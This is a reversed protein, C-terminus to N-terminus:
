GPPSTAAKASCQPDLPFDARVFTSDVAKGHLTLNDDGGSLKDTGWINQWIISHPAVFKGKSFFVTGGPGIRCQFATGDANIQVWVKKSQFQWTGRIAEPPAHAASQVASSSFALVAFLITLGRMASHDETHAQVM